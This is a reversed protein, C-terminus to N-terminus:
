GERCFPIPSRIIVLAPTGSCLTWFKKRDELKSIANVPVVFSGISLDCSYLLLVRPGLQCAMSTRSYFKGKLIFSSRQKPTKENVCHIGNNVFNHGPRELNVTRTRLLLITPPMHSFAEISSQKCLVVFVSHGGEVLLRYLKFLLNPMWCQLLQRASKCRSLSDCTKGRKNIDHLQPAFLISM